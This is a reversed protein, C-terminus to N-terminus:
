RASVKRYISPMTASSQSSIIASWLSLNKFPLRIEGAGM